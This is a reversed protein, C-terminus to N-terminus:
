VAKPALQHLRAICGAFNQKEIEPTISKNVEIIIWDIMNSKEFSRHTREVDVMYDLRKKIIEHLSAMRLRYLLECQLDLIETKADKIMPVAEYKATEAHAEDILQQFTAQAEGFGTEYTKVRWNKIRKKADDMFKMKTAGLYLLFPTIGTFFDDHLHVVEKTMMFFLGAIVVTYPGSTGLKPYLAQLWTTPFLGAHYERADIEPQRQIPYNVFDRDPGYFVDHADAWHKNRESLTAPELKTSMYDEKYADTFSPGTKLKALMESEACGRSPVIVCRAAQLGLNAGKRIALTSLM